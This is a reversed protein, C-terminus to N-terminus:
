GGTKKIGLAAAIEALADRGTQSPGPPGATSRPREPAATAAVPPTPSPKYARGVVAGVLQEARRQKAAAHEQQRQRRLHKWASVLGLMRILETTIKKHAVLSRYDDGKVEALERIELLGASQLKHSGRFTRKISREMPVTPGFARFDYVAWSYRESPGGARPARVFLSDAEMGYFLSTLQTAINTLFDSRLSRKREKHVGALADYLEGRKHELLQVQVAKAAREIFFPFSRGGIAAHAADAARQPGIARLPTAKVTGMVRAPYRCRLLTVPITSKEDKGEQVAEGAPTPNLWEPASGSTGALWNM